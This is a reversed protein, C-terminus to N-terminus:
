DKHTKTPSEADKRPEHGAVGGSKTLSGSDKRSGGSNKSPRAGKRGYREVERLEEYAKRYRERLTPDKVHLYLRYSNSQPPLGEERIEFRPDSLLEMFKSSYTPSFDMVKMFTSKSYFVMEESRDDADPRLSVMFARITRVFVERDDICDALFDEWEEDFTQIESAPQGTYDLLNPSVLNELNWTCLGPILKNVSKAIRLTIDRFSNMFSKNFLLEVKISYRHLCPEFQLKRVTSVFADIDEILREREDHRSAMPGDRWKIFDSTYGAGVRKAAHDWARSSRAASSSRARSAM